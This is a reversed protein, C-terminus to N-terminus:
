TLTRLDLAHWALTENDGTSWWIFDGRAGANTAASDVQVTRKTATDYLALKSVALRGNTTIMTMLVEFRDRLAVDSAIAATTADGVVRLDSGDPRILDTETAEAANNPITRCWAPSCTVQKNAPVQVTQEAGTEINHLRTPQDTASPATVLWPWASQAWAGPVVRITVPGGALPIARVETENPQGARSAAWHLQSGVVQVDYRSGFFVPAGVDVDLQASAGDGTRPASWLSVKANGAADSTTHMWYVRDATAALGDFSGGETVSQSQLVRPAGTAPVLALDTHQGDAAAIVGVSTNQDLVVAPTYASGDPFTAQIPFPRAKPWVTAVTPPGAPARSATGSATSSRRPAPLGLLLVIVALAAGLGLWLRWRSM